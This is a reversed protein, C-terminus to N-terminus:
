SESYTHLCSNGCLVRKICSNEIKPREPIVPKKNPIKTLKIVSEDFDISRKFHTKLLNLNLRSKAKLSSPKTPQFAARNAKSFLKLHHREM